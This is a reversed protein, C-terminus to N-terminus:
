WRDGTWSCTGGGSCNVSVRAGPLLPGCEIILAVTSTVVPVVAVGLRRLAREGLQAITATM